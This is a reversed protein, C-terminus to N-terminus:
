RAGGIVNTLHWGMAVGIYYAVKASHEADTSAPADDDPGYKDGSFYDNIVREFIALEKVSGGDVRLLQEPVDKFHHALMTPDVDQDLLAFVAQLGLPSQTRTPYATKKQSRTTTKKSM